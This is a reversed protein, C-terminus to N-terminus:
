DWWTVVAQHLGAAAAYFHMLAKAHRQIYVAYDGPIEQDPHRSRVATETLSMETVPLAELAEAIQVVVDPEHSRIDDYVFYGDAGTPFDPNLLEGGCLAQAVTSALDVQALALLARELFVPSWDLDEFAEQADVEFSIISMLANADSKAASFRQASIRALQQTVAM